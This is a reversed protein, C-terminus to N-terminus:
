PFSCSMSCFPTTGFAYMLSKFSSRVTSSSHSCLYLASRGYIIVSLLSFYAISQTVSYWGEPYPAIGSRRYHRVCTQARSESDYCNIAVSKTCIWPRRYLGSPLLYKSRGIESNKEFFCYFSPKKRFARLMINM